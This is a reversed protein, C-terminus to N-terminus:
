RLANNFMWWSLERVVGAAEAAELAQAESVEGLQADTWRLM